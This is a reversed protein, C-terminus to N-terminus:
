WLTCGLWRLGIWDDFAAMLEGIEGGVSQGGGGGPAGLFKDLKGGAKEIFTAFLAPYYSAM